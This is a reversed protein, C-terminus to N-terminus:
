QLNKKTQMIISRPIAFAALTRTTHIYVYLSDSIETLRKKLLFRHLM